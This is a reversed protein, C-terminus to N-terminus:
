PTSRAASWSRMVRATEMPAPPTSYKKSRVSTADIASAGHVYQDGSAAAKNALRQALPQGPVAVLQGHEAAARLARGTTQWRVGPHDVAQVPNIVLFGQVRDDIQGAFVQEAFAPRRRAFLGQHVRAQIHGAGQHHQGTPQPVRRPHHHTARRHAKVAVGAVGLESFVTRRPALVEAVPEAVGPLLGGAFRAAQAHAQTQDAGADHQAALPAHQGAQPRHVPQPQARPQAVAALPQAPNM